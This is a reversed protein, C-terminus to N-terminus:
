NTDSVPVTNKNEAKKYFDALNVSFSFSNTAGALHYRARGYSFRFKNIKFGFGWSIGTLYPRTEILLEQRRQHNYGINVFFNKTPVFEVGIIFHRLVKDSFKLFLSKSATTTDTPNVPYTMDPMLLNRIVCSFRFPAHSLKKTVGLQIDFPMPESHGAYYPKLQYGLNKIVIAADLLWKKNHYTLGGDLLFATSYYDHFDSYITKLNAGVTFLSDFVPKAWILNLNYEAASFNGTIAGTEDTKKFNGYNIYHMGAAFAGYPEYQRAYSVYGYNIGALYMSYNLCLNENMSGNLLSPNYFPMNLDNDYITINNGGLSAVRASNPLNLFEYVGSGGPQASITIAYLSFSIFFIRFFM